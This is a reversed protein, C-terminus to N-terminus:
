KCACHCNEMISPFLQLCLTSREYVTNLQLAYCALPDFGYMMLLRSYAFQGSIHPYTDFARKFIIKNREHQVGDNEKRAFFVMVLTFLSGKDSLTISGM